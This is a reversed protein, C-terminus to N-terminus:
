QWTAGTKSSVVPFRGIRISGRVTSTGSTRSLGLSGAQRLRTLHRRLLQDWDYLPENWISTTPLKRTPFPSRGATLTTKARIRGEQRHWRHDGAAGPTHRGPKLLHAM